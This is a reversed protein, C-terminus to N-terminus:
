GRQLTRSRPAYNFADLYGTLSRHDSGVNREICVAVPDHHRVLIARREVVTLLFETREPFDGIEAVLRRPLLDAVQQRIAAAARVVAVALPPMRHGVLLGIGLCM